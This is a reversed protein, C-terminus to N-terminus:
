TPYVLDSQLVHNYEFAGSWKKLFIQTNPELGNWHCDGTSQKCSPMTYVPDENFFTWAVIFFTLVLTALLIADYRFIGMNLNAELKSKFRERNNQGYATRQTDLFGAVRYTTQMWFEVGILYLNKVIFTIVVYWFIWGWLKNDGKAKPAQLAGRTQSVLHHDNHYFNSIYFGVGFQFLVLVLQIVTLLYYPIKRLGSGNEHTESCLVRYIQQVSFIKRLIIDITAYLFSLVFMATLNIDNDFKNNHIYLGVVALPFTWLQAYVFYSSTINAKEFDALKFNKKPLALEFSMDPVAVFGLQMWESINTSDKMYKSDAVADRAKTGGQMYADVRVKNHFSSLNLEKFKEGWPTDKDYSDPEEDDNKQPVHVPDDSAFDLDEVADMLYQNYDWLNYSDKNPTQTSDKSPTDANGPGAKNSHGNTYHKFMRIKRAFLTIFVVAFFGYVISGYPTILQHEIEHVNAAWIIYRLIFTDIVLVGLVMVFWLGQAFQKQYKGPQAGSMWPLPMHYLFDVAVFTTVLLLVSVVYHMLMYSSHASMLGLSTGSNLVVKLDDYQELKCMLKDIPNAGHETVTTGDTAKRITIGKHSFFEEADNKHDDSATSSGFTLALAAIQNSVDCAGQMQWPLFGKYDVHYGNTEDHRVDIMVPNVDQASQANAGSDFHYPQSVGDVTIYSHSKEHVDKGFIHTSLFVGQMPNTIGHSYKNDFLGLTMSWLLLLVFWAVFFLVFAANQWKNANNSTQALGQSTEEEHKSFETTPTPQM